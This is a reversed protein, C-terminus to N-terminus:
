PEHDDEREGGLLQAAVAALRKEVSADIRSDPTTVRCGGRQLAPDEAIRWASSGQAEALTDRVLAADAPHLHLCVDRASAPLAALAERIVAVVQGPDTSLERRILHRAVTLTLALLEEEVQEDLAALPEQLVEAIAQLRGVAETLQKHGAQWGEQRGRQSGAQYGEKYAEEYAQKQIRELEEASLPRHHKHREDEGVDPLSWPRVGAAQEAVIVKSTNKQM